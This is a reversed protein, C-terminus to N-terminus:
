RATAASRPSGLHLDASAPWLASSSGQMSCQRLLPLADAATSTLGQAAPSSQLEALLEAALRGDAGRWAAEGALARHPLPSRNARLPMAIGALAVARRAGGGTPSGGAVAAVRRIRPGIGRPRGTSSPRASLDLVRVKDLWAMREEEAGGVLPHKLLALLSVPALEQCSRQRDGLLLTGAPAVSLPRGASDDAGIGWRALLASVRAALQRDPTIMHPRRASTELAQRLTLAIVQAETAPDRVEAVRIGSLRRQQAPLTEWKHSFDPAAMANAVAPRSCRAFGRARVLAM